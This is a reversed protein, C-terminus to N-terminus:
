IRKDKIHNVINKYIDTETSKYLRNVLEKGEKGSRFIGRMAEIQIKANKENDIILKLFNNYKINKFKRITKIIELRNEENEFKYREKLSKINEHLNLDGIVEIALNRIKDNTHYLLIEIKDSNNIQKYYRIMSLCFMSVSPNELLVWEGFDPVDINRKILLQHLTIQEWLSFPTKLEYLFDFADISEDEKSLDVLAIQAEIRVLENKSNIYKYLIHNKETINMSYLEKFAKIKKHWKLSYLKKFTVKHLNFKKYLDSLIKGDEDEKDVNLECFKDILLQRKFSGKFDINLSLDKEGAKVKNFYEKLADEYLKSYKNKIKEKKEIKKRNFFIFISLIMMLSLSIIISLFLIDILRFSLDFLSIKAHWLNLDYNGVIQFVFGLLSLIIFFLLIFIVKKM